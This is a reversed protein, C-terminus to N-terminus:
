GNANRRAEELWSIAVPDLQEKWASLLHVIAVWDPCLHYVYTQEGVTETRVTALGHKVLLNMLANVLPM